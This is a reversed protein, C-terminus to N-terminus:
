GGDKKSPVCGNGLDVGCTTSSVCCAKGSAPQPCFALMCAHGADVPKAGGHGADAPKFPATTGESACASAAALSLVVSAVMLFSRSAIRKM